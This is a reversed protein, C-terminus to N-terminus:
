VICSYVNRVERELDESVEFSRLARGKELAKNAETGV